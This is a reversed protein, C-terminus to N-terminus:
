SHYTSELKGKNCPDMDCRGTWDEVDIELEEGVMMEVVPVLNRKEGLSLRPVDALQIISLIVLVTVLIMM